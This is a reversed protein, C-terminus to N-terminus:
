RLSGGREWKSITKSSVGLHNAVEEQTFNNEIRFNKLLKGIPLM